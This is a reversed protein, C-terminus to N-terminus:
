SSFDFISIVEERRYSSLNKGNTSAANAKRKKSSNNLNVRKLFNGQCYTAKNM